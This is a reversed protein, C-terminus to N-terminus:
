DGGGLPAPACPACGRAESLAERLRAVTVPKSLSRVSRLGKYEALLRANTAYQPSYGTIIILHATAGEGVLWLILENGDIEPMIMDLVVVDPPQRRYAEMFARGNATVEVEFGMPVAVKAVFAAFKEEDDVILLRKKGM